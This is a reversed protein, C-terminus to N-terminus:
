GSIGKVNVQCTGGIIEGIVSISFDLEQSIGMVRECVEKSVIIMMGIGMNFVKYMEEQPVKGCQQIIEFIKPCSILRSDIEADVTKPLIRSLNDYFGGGTIHAIGHITIKKELIAHIIPWYCTHPQLLMHGLSNECDELVTDPTFNNEAFLVKRALSYGNTHLGNSALGLICDGIRIDKGSIINSRDVIGTISGVLDYHEGYMGPMEATEGGLLAIGQRACADTLSSLIDEFPHAKLKGVGLYDLFYLPTAGQCAIDNVCHNVIDHGITKHHNMLSALMLKTGVGDISSVLVPDKFQTLDPQFLGGFSGEERIVEKRFTKRIKSKVKGLLDTALEINVGSDQYSKGQIKNQHNKSM